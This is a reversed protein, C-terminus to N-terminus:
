RTDDDFTGIYEDMAEAKDKYKHYIWVETDHWEEGLGSGEAILNVLWTYAELDRIADEKRSPMREVHRAPHDHGCYTCSGSHWDKFTLKCNNCRM